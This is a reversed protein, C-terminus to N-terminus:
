KWDKLRRQYEESKFQEIKNLGADNLKDQMAKFNAVSEEETKSMVAKAWLTELLDTIQKDTVALPNNALIPINGFTNDYITDKLNDNLMKKWKAEENFNQDYWYTSKGDDKMTGDPSVLNLQDMGILEGADYDFTSDLIAQKAADVFSPQDNEFKWTSKDTNPVGWGILRTGIDTMSFDLWKVIDEPNKAKDTIITMNGSRANKGSMYSKEANPAKLAYQMFRKDETWKTDAKQWLEHGANWGIWWAGVYGMVRDTSMKAKMNEYKNIFSDPDLLGDRFIKNMFKTLELGEPTNVWHTMVGEPTVKYGEKLGWIGALTPVTNTTVPAYSTLAYTKEGKDNKPHKAQMQKLIDYFQDPTEFTPNGLENLYDYRMHAAYDPIPLLGWYSPLAYLKGDTLYTKYLDGLQEKIHPAYKDIFQGLEIAKGQAVWKSVTAEDMGAIVEPYDNSVLMLNQREDRKVDYVLKNIKVNFKDLIYQQLQKANKGAKDPNAQGAYYSFEITKEPLEWGFENPKAEPNTSASETTSPTTQAENGGNNKNSCAALTSLVLILALVVRLTKKM